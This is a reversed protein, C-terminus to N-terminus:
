WMWMKANLKQPSRFQGKKELAKMKDWTAGYQRSLQETMVAGTRLRKMAAITQLVRYVYLMTSIDDSTMIRNHMITFAVAGPLEDLKVAVADDDVRDPNEHLIYEAAPHSNLNEIQRLLDPSRRFGPKSPPIFVKQYRSSSYKPVDEEIISADLPKGRNAKHGSKWAKRQCDKGCHRTLRGVLKCAACLSFSEDSDQQRFCNDCFLKAENRIAVTEKRWKHGEKEGMISNVMEKNRRLVSKTSKKEHVMQVPTLDSGIWHIYDGRMVRMASLYTKRAVEPDNEVWGIIKDYREQVLIVPQTPPNDNDDLLCLKLMDLCGGLNNTEFMEQKQTAERIRRRQEAEGIAIWKAEFEKDNFIDVVERSLALHKRCYIRRANVLEQLINPTSPGNLMENFADPPMSRYPDWVLPKSPDYREEVRRDMDAVWADYDTRSTHKTKPTPLSTRLASLIDAPPNDM